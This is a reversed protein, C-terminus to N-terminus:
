EEPDSAPTGSAGASNLLASLERSPLKRPSGAVPEIVYEGTRALEEELRLDTARALAPIRLVGHEDVLCDLGSALRFRIRVNNRVSYNRLDTLKM